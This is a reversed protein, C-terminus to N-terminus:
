KIPPLAASALTRLANRIAVVSDPASLKDGYLDLESRRTPELDQLAAGYRTRLIKAIEDFRWYGEYVSPERWIVRDGLRIVTDGDSKDSGDDDWLLVFAPEHIDPLQDPTKLSRSAFERQRSEIAEIYAQDAPDLDKWNARSEAISPYMVVAIKEGCRPCAYESLDAFSELVGRTRAWGRGSATHAHRSAM